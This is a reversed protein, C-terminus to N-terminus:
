KLTSSTGSRDRFNHRPSSPEEDINSHQLSALSGYGISSGDYISATPSLQSVGILSFLFNLKIYHISANFPYLIDFHNSSADDCPESTLTTSHQPPRARAPKIGPSKLRLEPWKRAKLYM